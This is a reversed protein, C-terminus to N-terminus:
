RGLWVLFVFTVVKQSSALSARAFQIGNGHYGPVIQCGAGPRFQENKPRRVERVDFTFSKDLELWFMFRTSM